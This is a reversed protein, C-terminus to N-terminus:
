SLHTCFFFALPPSLLLLLALAEEEDDDDYELLEAALSAEEPDLTPPTGTPFREKVIHIITIAAPAAAMAIAATMIPIRLDSFFGCANVPDTARRMSNNEFKAL